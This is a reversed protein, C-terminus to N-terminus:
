ARGSVALRALRGTLYGVAGRCLLAQENRFGYYHIGERQAAIAIPVVPFGVVGFMYEVGQQKLSRAIITAGSLTAMIM